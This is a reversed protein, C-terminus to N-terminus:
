SGTECRRVADGARGWQGAESARAVDCPVRASRCRPTCAVGGPAGGNARRAHMRSTAHCRHPNAQRCACCWGATGHPDAKLKWLGLTAALRGPNEFDLVRAMREGSQSDYEQTDFERAHNRPTTEGAHAGEKVAYKSEAAISARPRRRRGGGGRCQM